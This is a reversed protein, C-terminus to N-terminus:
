RSIFLRSSAPFRTPRACNCAPLSTNPFTPESRGGYSFTANNDDRHAQGGPALRLSASVLAHTRAGKDRAPLPAPPGQRPRASPRPWASRLRRTPVAKVLCASHSANMKAAQRALLPHLSRGRAAAAHVGGAEAGWVTGSGDPSDATACAHSRMSQATTAIKRARKYM